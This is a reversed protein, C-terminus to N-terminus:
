QDSQAPRAVPPIRIFGTPANCVIWFDEVIQGHRDLAVDINTYQESGSTAAARGPKIILRFSTIICGPVLTNM